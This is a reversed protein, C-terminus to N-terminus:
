QYRDLDLSEIGEKQFKLLVENLQIWVLSGTFLTLLLAVGYASILGFDFILLGGALFVWVGLCTGWYTVLLNAGELKFYNSSESDEQSWQRIKQEVQTEFTVGCILAIAFGIILILFPPQSYYYM